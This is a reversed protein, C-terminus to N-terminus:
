SIIIKIKNYSSTNNTYILKDRGNFAIKLGVFNFFDMCKNFLYQLEENTNAHLVMDDAYAGRPVPNLGNQLDYGRNTEELM